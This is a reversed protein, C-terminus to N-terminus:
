HKASHWDRLIPEKGTVDKYLKNLLEIGEKSDLEVTHRPKLKNALWPRYMLALRSLCPWYNNNMGISVQNRKILFVRKFYEHELKEIFVDFNTKQPERENPQKAWNAAQLANDITSM